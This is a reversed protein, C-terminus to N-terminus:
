EAFPLSVAFVAGGAPADEYWARGGNGRALQSVIALGLGTGSTARATGQERAFREFLRDRFAAPVGDGHDQMRLVVTDGDQVASLRFPPRGYKFANTVYNSVIEQLHDPDVLVVISPDVDIEVDGGPGFADVAATVADALPVRETRPGEEQGDLRSLTLLDGALRRLREGQRHVIDLYQRLDEESLEDLEELMLETFTAISALPAQFEHSAVSVFGKLAEEADRRATVDRLTAVHVTEGGLRTTAVHMEVVLRDGGRVVDLEAPGDTTLPFGFQGGTLEDLARGLLTAAAPNAVLVTGDARVLLIADANDDLVSEVLDQLEGRELGSLARSFPRDRVSGRGDTVYM